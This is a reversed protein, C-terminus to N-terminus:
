RPTGVESERVDVSWLQLLLIGDMTQIHRSPLVRHQFFLSTISIILTPINSLTFHLLLLHHTHTSSFSPSKRVRSSRSFCVGDRRASYLNLNFREANVTIWKGRNQKAATHKTEMDSLNFLLCDSSSNTWFRLVFRSSVEFVGNSQDLSFSISPFIFRFSPLSLPLCFSFILCVSLIWWNTKETTEAHVAEASWNM